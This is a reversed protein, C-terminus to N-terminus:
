KYITINNELPQWSTTAFTIVSRLAGNDIYKLNQLHPIGHHITWHSSQCFPPSPHESTIWLNKKWYFLASPSADRYVRCEKLHLSQPDLYSSYFGEVFQGLWVKFGFQDNHLLIQRSRSPYKSSIVRFLTNAFKDPSRGVSWNSDVGLAILKRSFLFSIFKFYLSPPQFFSMYAGAFGVKCKQGKQHRVLPYNTTQNMGHHDVYVGCRSCLVKHTVNPSM